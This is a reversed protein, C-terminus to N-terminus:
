AQAGMWAAPDQTADGVNYNPFCVFFGLGFAAGVLACPLAFVLELTLFCIQLPLRLLELSYGLAAEGLAWACAVHHQGRAHHAQAKHALAVQGVGLVGIATALSVFQAVREVASPRTKRALGTQVGEAAKATVADPLHAGQPRNPAGSVGVLMCAGALIFWTPVPTHMKPLCCRHWGRLCAPKPALWMLVAAFAESHAVFHAGGAAGLVVDKVLRQRWNDGIGGLGDDRWVDDTARCMEPLWRRAEAVYFSPMASPLMCLTPLHPTVVVKAAGTASRAPGQKAAWTM